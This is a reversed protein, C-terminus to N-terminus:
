PNTAEIQFQEGDEPTNEAELTNSM